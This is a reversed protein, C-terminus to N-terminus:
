AEEKTMKRKKLAQMLPSVWPRVAMMLGFSQANPHPRNQDSEIVLEKFIELFKIRLKAIDGPKLNLNIFTFYQDERNFESELFQTRALRELQKGLPGEKRFRIQGLYNRKIKGHPHVEILGWKELLSLIKINRENSVSYERLIETVSRGEQLMFFYHMAEPEKSLKLEQEPTLFFLDTTKEYPVTKFFESIPLDMLECASEIRSLLIEKSSMIRKVSSESIKWKLALDKYSLGRLKLQDKLSEIIIEARKQM